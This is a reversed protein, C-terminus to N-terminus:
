PSTGAQRLRRVTWRKGNHVVDLHIASHCSSCLLQRPGGEMTFSQLEWCRPCRICGLRGPASDATM